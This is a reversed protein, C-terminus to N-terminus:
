HAVQERLAHHARTREVEPEVDGDLGGHDVAPAHWGALDVGETRHRAPQEPLDGGHRVDALLAPLDGGEDLLAGRFAGDRRARAGSAHSDTRGMLFSYRDVWTNRSQPGDARAYTDFPPFDAPPRGHAKTGISDFLLQTAPALAQACGCTPEIDV